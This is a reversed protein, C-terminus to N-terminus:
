ARQKRRGTIGKMKGEKAPKKEGPVAIRGDYVHDLREGLTERFEASKDAKKKESELKKRMHKEALERLPDRGGTTTDLQDLRELHIPRPESYEGHEDEIVWYTDVTEENRRVVYWRPSKPFTEAGEKVFILTLRSDRKKLEAQFAIAMGVDHAADAAVYEETADLVNEPLILDSM